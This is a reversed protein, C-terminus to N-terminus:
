RFIQRLGRNIGKPPGIPRRRYDRAADITRDGIRRTRVEPRWALPASPPLTASPGRQRSGHGQNGDESNGPVGQHGSIVACGVRVDVVRTADVDGIHEREGPGTGGAGGLKVRKRAPHDRQVGSCAPSIPGPM